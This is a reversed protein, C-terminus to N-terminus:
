TVPASGAPLQRNIAEIARHNFNHVRTLLDGESSDGLVHVSVGSAQVTFPQRCFLHVPMQRAALARGLGAVQEGISTDPGEHCLIALVQGTVKHKGQGNLEAHSPAAETQKAIGNAATKGNAVPEGVTGTREMTETNM